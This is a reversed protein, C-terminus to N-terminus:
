RSSPASTPDMIPTPHSSWDKDFSMYLSDCNSCRLPSTPCCNPISKINGMKFCTPNPCRHARHSHSNACLLWTPHSAKCSPASHGFRNCNRCQSSRFSYHAREVRRSRSFLFISTGFKPVDAPAVAVVVSTTPKEARKVPDPQLFRAAFITVGVANSISLSLAPLLAEQDPPMYRRPLRPVALDVQNPAPRFPRHPNDGMPFAHHLKNAM